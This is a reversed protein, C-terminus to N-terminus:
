QDEENEPSMFRPTQYKLEQSPPPERSWTLRLQSELPLFHMLEGILGGHQDNGWALGQTHQKNLQPHHTALSERQGM